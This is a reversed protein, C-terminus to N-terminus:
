KNLFKDYITTFQINETLKQLESEFYKMGQIQPLCKITKLQSKSYIPEDVYTNNNKNRNKNINDRHYFLTGWKM